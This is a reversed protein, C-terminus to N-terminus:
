RSSTDLSSEFRRKAANCPTKFPYCALWRGPVCGVSGPTAALMEAPDTREPQVLERLNKTRFVIVTQVFFQLGADNCAHAVCSNDAASFRVKRRSFLKDVANPWDGLCSTHPGTCHRRITPRSRCDPPYNIVHPGRNSSLRTLSARSKVRITPQLLRIFV